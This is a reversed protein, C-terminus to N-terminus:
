QGAHARALRRGSTSTTLAHTHGALEFLLSKSELTGLQGVGGGTGTRVEFQSYGNVFM